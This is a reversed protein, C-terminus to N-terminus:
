RDTYRSLFNESTANMLVSVNHCDFNANVAESADAAVHQAGREIIRIQFEHRDVIQSIRFRQCVQQLVVGNEAVQWMFDRAPVSLM